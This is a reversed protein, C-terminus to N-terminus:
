KRLQKVIAKGNSTLHQAARCTIILYIADTSPNPPTSPSVWLVIIHLMLVINNHHSRMRLVVHRDVCWAYWQTKSTWITPLYYSLTHMNKSYRPRHNMAKGPRIDFYQIEQFILDYGIIPTWWFYACIPSASLQLPFIPAYVLLMHFWRGKSLHVM